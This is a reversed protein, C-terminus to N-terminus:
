VYVLEIVDKNEVRVILYGADQKLLHARHGNKAIRDGFLEMIEPVISGWPHEYSHVLLYFTWEDRGIAKPWERNYARILVNLLPSQHPEEVKLLAHERSLVKEEEEEDEEEEDEEQTKKMEELKETDPPTDKIFFPDQKFLRRYVDIEDEEDGVDQYTELYVDMGVFFSKEHYAHHGNVHIYTNLEEIIKPLDADREPYRTWLVIIEKHSKKAILEKATIHYQTVVEQRLKERNKERNAVNELRIREVEKQIADLPLINM